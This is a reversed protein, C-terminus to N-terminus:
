SPIYVLTVQMSIHVAHIYLHPFLCGVRYVVYEGKSKQSEFCM